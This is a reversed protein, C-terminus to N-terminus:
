LSGNANKQSIMCLGGILASNYDVKIGMSEAPCFDM